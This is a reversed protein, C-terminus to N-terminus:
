SAVPELPHSSGSAADLERTSIAHWPDNVAVAGDAGVACAPVGLRGLRPLEKAAGNVMLAKVTVEAWAATVTVVTAQVTEVDGGRPRISLGTAPDLLHHASAGDSATWCSRLTGSTAVGGAAIAVQGLEGEGSPRGIGVRWGRDGPARGAVRLDGGVNVLVGAAGDAMVDAAVLDAALGKGIGGPDLTMGEPLQVISAVPDVTVDDYWRGPSSSPWARTGETPDSRPEATGANLGVISGLLTPDFAGDTALSGAGMMRVMTVTSPDVVVAVGAAANLRSIDSTPIFRSWRRELLEVMARGRGALAGARGTETVVIVEAACGMARFRIHEVQAPERVVTM